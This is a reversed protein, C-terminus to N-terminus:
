APLQLGARELAGPTSSLQLGVAATLRRRDIPVITFGSYRELVTPELVADVVSKPAADTTVTTRALLNEHVDRIEVVVTGGGKAEFVSLQGAAEADARTLMAITPVGTAGATRYASM